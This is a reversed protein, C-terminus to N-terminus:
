TGTKNVKMELVSPVGNSGKFFMRSYNRENEVTTIGEGIIDRQIFGLWRNAKWLDFDTKDDLLELRMIDLMWLVHPLGTGENPDQEAVIDLDRLWTRYREVLVITTM